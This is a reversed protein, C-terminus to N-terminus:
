NGYAITLFSISSPNGKLIQLACRELTAGTTVVDDVLLINQAKVLTPQTLVYTNELIKLRSLRDMETLSKGEKIRLLVNKSYRKNMNEALGLAFEEAQNYGRLAMKSEHLPVAVILDIDKYNPNNQLIGGYYLGLSRAIDAKSRYKIQELLSHVIGGPSYYYMSAATHLNIRGIFHRTFENQLQHHHNTLDIMGQCSVCFVEHDSLLKGNCHLCFNPFILDILPDFLCKIRQLTNM